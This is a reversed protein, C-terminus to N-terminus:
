TLLEEHREFIDEPTGQMVIEGRNMVISRTAGVAEEMVHKTRRM